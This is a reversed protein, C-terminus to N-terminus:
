QRRRAVLTVGGAALAASALLAIGVVEDGTQPLPLVGAEEASALPAGDDTIVTEPALGSEGGQDDAAGANDDETGADGEDAPANEDSSDGASGADGGPVPAELEPADGAPAKDPLTAAAPTYFLNIENKSALAEVKISDRDADLYVLDDLPVALSEAPIEVGIQQSEIEYSGMKDFRVAAGDVDAVVTKSACADEGTEAATVAYYNVTSSSRSRFYHLEVMNKSPDADMVKSDFRADWFFFDDLPRVYHWPDIEEGVKVEFTRTELLRLGSPDDFSPDDYSVIECYHVTLTTSEAADASARDDEAAEEVPAAVAEEAVMPLETDAAELLTLAAGGVVSEPADEATFVEDAAFSPLPALALTTALMGALLARKAGTLKMTNRKM